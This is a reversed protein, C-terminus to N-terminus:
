KDNMLEALGAFPKYTDVQQSTNEDEPGVEIQGSVGQGDGDGSTEDRLESCQQAHSASMPLSLIIEDEFVDAIVLDLGEVVIADEDEPVEFLDAESAVLLARVNVEINITLAELCRSCSVDLQASARGIVQHRRKRAKRCEIKVDLEPHSSDLVLARLRSMRELPLFGELTRGQEALEQYNITESLPGASM